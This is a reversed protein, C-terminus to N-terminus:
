GAGRSMERLRSRCGPASVYIQFGARSPTWDPAATRVKGVSQLYCLGNLAQGAIFAIVDEDLPQNTLQLIDAVSGGGCYEMGIWLAEKWHWSGQNTPM